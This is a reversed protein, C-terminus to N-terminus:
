TFISTPIRTANGCPAYELRVGDYGEGRLYAQRALRDIETERAFGASTTDENTAKLVYYRYNWSDLKERLSRIEQLPDALPM